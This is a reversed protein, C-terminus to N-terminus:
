KEIIKQHKGRMEQMKNRITNLILQSDFEVWNQEAAHKKVYDLLVTRAHEDLGPRVRTGELDFANPKKGFVSCISLANETFIELLLSRALIKSDKSTIKINSLQIADIYVRSHPLLEDVGSKKERHKLTWRSDNPDYEPPLTFKRALGRIKNLPNNNKVETGDSNHKKEEKKRADNQVKSGTAKDSNNENINVKMMINELEKVAPELEGIDPGACVENTLEIFQKIIKCNEAFAFQMKELMLQNKEYKSHLEELTEKFNDGFVSRLALIITWKKMLNNQSPKNEQNNNTKDSEEVCQSTKPLSEKTAQDPLSVTKNGSLSIRLSQRTLYRRAQPSADATGVKSEKRGIRGEANTLDLQKPIEKSVPEADSNLTSTTRVKNTKSSSQSELEKKYSTSPVDEVIKTSSQEQDCIKNLIKIYNRADKYSKTSYKINALFDTWNESFEQKKVRKKVESLVEVPFKVLTPGDSTERLRIWSNPVCVYKEPDKYPPELLEIVHFKFEKQKSM